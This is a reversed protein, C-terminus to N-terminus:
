HRLTMMKDAKDTLCSPIQMVHMDRSKKLVFKDTKGESRFTM